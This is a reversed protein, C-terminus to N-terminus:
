KKLIWKLNTRGDLDGSARKGELKEISITYANGMMRIRGVYGAWRVRM